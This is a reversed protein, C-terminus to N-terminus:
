CAERSRRRVAFLAALGLLGTLAIWANPGFPLSSPLTSSGVPSMGILVMPEGSGGNAGLTFANVADPTPNFGTPAAPSQSDSPTARKPSGSYLNFDGGNGDRTAWPSGTTPQGVLQSAFDLTGGNTDFVVGTFDAIAFTGNGNAAGSVTVNLALVAPDPLAFFQSGPNQLLTSEFTISGVALATSQPDDFTFQLTIPTASAVGTASVSLLAAFACRVFSSMM